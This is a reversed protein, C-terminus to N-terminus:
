GRGPRARRRLNFQAWVGQAGLAIVVGILIPHIQVAIGLAVLLGPLYWLWFFRVWLREMQHRAYPGVLPALQPDDVRRGTRVLRRLRMRDARDLRNWEDAFARDDPVFESPTTATM